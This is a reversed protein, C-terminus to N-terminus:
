GAPGDRDASSHVAAGRTQVVGFGWAL